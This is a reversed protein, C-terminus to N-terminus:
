LGALPTMFFAMLVLVEHVQVCQGAFMNPGPDTLASHACSNIMERQRCCTLTLEGESCSSKYKRQGLNPLETAEHVWTM